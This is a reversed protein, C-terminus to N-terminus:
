TVTKDLALYAMKFRKGSFAFGIKILQSIGMQQAQAVYEHQDIQALANKAAKELNNELLKVGKVPDVKKFEILLSPKAPDKAAIFYDYRGYGSERNSFLQYNPNYHLSATLGLMLGHYFAEPQKATDHHSIIQTMMERLDREFVALNGNLLHNLFENFGEIGRGNGLWQKIIQRYLYDVERNPIQLMCYLGDPTHEKAVVKLYGAM